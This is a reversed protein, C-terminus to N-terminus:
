VPFLAELAAYFRDTGYGPLSAAVRRFEPNRDIGPRAGLFAHDRESLKPPEPQAADPRM